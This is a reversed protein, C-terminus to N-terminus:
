KNANLYSQISEVSYYTKGGIKSSKIKGQKRLNWLATTGKELAEQAEKETLWKQLPNKQGHNKVSEQISDLKKSLVEFLDYPLFYLQPSELKKQNSNEEKM